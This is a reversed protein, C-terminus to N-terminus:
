AYVLASVLPAGHAQIRWGPLAQRSRCCWLVPSAAKQPQLPMAYARVERWSGAEKCSSAQWTRSRPRCLGAANYGPRYPSTLAQILGRTRAAPLCRVVSHGVAISSVSGALPALTKNLSAVLAYAVSPPLPSLGAGVLNYTAVM